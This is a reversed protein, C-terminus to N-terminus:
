KYSRQALHVYEYTLPEKHLAPTNDDGKYEWAAVYAYHEDDRLAEGEPTQYEERFHAGCSERRELADLCILEALELFDSVRGAKELAQNLQEDSGPVNVNRWFEERIEPIRRLAHELGAKDRAMGCYEWM